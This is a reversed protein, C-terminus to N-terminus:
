RGAQRERARLYAERTREQERLIDEERSAMYGELLANVYRGAAELLAPLTKDGPNVGERCTRRLTETMILISRHGLGELALQRGRERVAEEDGTELFGLFAAAEERGVEDLRRPAILMRNSFVTEHLARCLSSTIAEKCASVRQLLGPTLTLGANIGQRGESSWTSAM